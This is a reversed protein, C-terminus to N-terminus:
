EKRKKYIFRGVIKSKIFNKEEKTIGLYYFLIVILLLSILVLGILGLFNPPLYDNVKYVIVGSSLSVAFCPIYVNKIYKRISFCVLQKVIILRLISAAITLLISVYFVILVSFHLKLFIYSIPLNLLLLGGVIIQYKKINGTAQALSMIPYNVSDLLSDLLVLQTFIVTYEPVNGKLWLALIYDMRCTLPITFILMLFFALKSGFIVFRISTEINKSAYSKIIQPRMATSFNQSFTIVANGVQFAIGRAANIIPGFFMNLVINLGQSKLVSAVSGFLNWGSYFVMEKFLSVDWCLKVHCESYKRMTYLVYMLSVILVIISQFIGYIILKDFSVIKLLFVIFLKCLAEIISIYAYIDMKEHAIITAKFPTTILTIIFSLISLEYIWIAANLREIPIIMKNMVFWLGFTEAIIGVFISLFFYIYFTMAFTIQLHEFDEKGLDFSFYRQSATAMASSLFNFMTVFGAVVNNIGYDEIGLVDLVVRVTYLSVFLILIQRIYLMLTNKLILKSSAKNEM